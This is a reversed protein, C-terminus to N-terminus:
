TVSETWNQTHQGLLQYARYHQMVASRRQNSHYRAGAQSHHRIHRDGFEGVKIGGLLDLCEGGRDALMRGPETAGSKASIESFPCM